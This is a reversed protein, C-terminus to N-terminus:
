AADGHERRYLQGDADDTADAPNDHLTAWPDALCDRRCQCAAVWYRGYLPRATPQHHGDAIDDVHRDIREGARLVRWGLILAGALLLYLIGRGDFASLNM